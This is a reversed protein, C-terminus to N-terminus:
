PLKKFFLNDLDKSSSRKAQIKNIKLEFYEIPDFYEYLQM